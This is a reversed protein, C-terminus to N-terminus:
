DTPALLTTDHTGNNHRQKGPMPSCPFVAKLLEEITTHIMATTAVNNVWGNHLLPSRNLLAMM